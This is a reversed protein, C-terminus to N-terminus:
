VSFDIGNLFFTEQKMRVSVYENCNFNLNQKHMLFLVCLENFSVSSIPNRNLHSVNLSMKRDDDGALHIRFDNTFQLQM